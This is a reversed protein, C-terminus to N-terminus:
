ELDGVRDLLRFLGTMGLSASPGQAPHGVRVDRRKRRLTPNWLEAGSPVARVIGGHGLGEGVDGENDAVVVFGDGVVGVDEAEAEEFVGVHAGAFAPDKDSGGAGGSGIQEEGTSSCGLLGGADAVLGPATDEEEEVGVVEPAIVLGELCVLDFEDALGFFLGVASDGDEFVQISIEPVQNLGSLIRLAPHGM